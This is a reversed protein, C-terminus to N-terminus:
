NVSPPPLTQGIPITAARVADCSSRPVGTSAVVQTEIKQDSDTDPPYEWGGVVHKVCRPGCGITLSSCSRFNKIGSRHVLNFSINDNCPLPESSSYLRPRSSPSPSPM